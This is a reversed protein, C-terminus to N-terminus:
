FMETNVVRSFREAVFVNERYTRDVFEHLEDLTNNLRCFIKYTYEKLTNYDHLFLIISLFRTLLQVHRM